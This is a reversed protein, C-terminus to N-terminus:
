QQKVYDQLGRASTIILYDRNNFYLMMAVNNKAKEDMNGIGTIKIQLEEDSTKEIHCRTGEIHVKEDTGFKNSYDILEVNCIFSLNRGRICLFGDRPEVGYVTIADMKRSDRTRTIQLQNVISVTSYPPIDNLVVSYSNIKSHHGITIPGIIRACAGVEVDDGLTPHRKGTPNNGIGAAGLIVGQLLYCNDGIECTEGIVTGVGHDIVFHRGISAAPHIEIQTKAKGSESVRRARDVYMQKFQSIEEILFSDQEDDEYYDDVTDKLLYIYNAVRYHMVARISNYAKKVYDTSNLAAPDKRALAIIDDSVLQTLVYVMETVKVNDLQLFASEDKVLSMMEDLVDKYRDTFSNEM